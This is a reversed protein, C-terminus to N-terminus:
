RGLDDILGNISGVSTAWAGSSTPISVRETMRGERGVVRGVRALEKALRANMEIMENFAAAIEGMMTGRRSTIRTSFDGDRAAKLAHLLAQLELAAPTQADDRSRTSTSRSKGNGNGNGHGNGNTTTRRAAMANMMRRAPKAHTPTAKSAMREEPTRLARRSPTAQSM